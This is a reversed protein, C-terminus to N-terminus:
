FTARFITQEVYINWLAIDINFVLGVLIIYIHNNQQVHMRTTTRTSEIKSLLRLFESSNEDRM